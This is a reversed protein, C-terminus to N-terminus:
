KQSNCSVLQDKRHNGEFKVTQFYHLINKRYTKMLISVTTKKITEKLVIWSYRKHRAM